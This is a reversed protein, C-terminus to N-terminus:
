PGGGGGDERQEDDLPRPLSPPTRAAGAWCANRSTGGFEAYSSRRLGCFQRCSPMRTLRLIVQKVKTTLQRDYGVSLSFINGPLAFCLRGEM